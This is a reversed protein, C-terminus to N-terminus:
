PVRELTESVYFDSTVKFSRLFAFAMLLILGLAGNFLIGSLLASLTLEGM